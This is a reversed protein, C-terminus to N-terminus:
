YLSALNTLVNITRTDRGGLENVYIDFAELFSSESEDYRSQAVYISGLSNLVSADNLRAGKSERERIKLARICVSEAEKYRGQSYYLTGLTELSDITYPHSDGLQNERIKLSEILLTEADAYRGMTSYLSALNNLSTATDPHQSGLENRSIDLAKRCWQEAEPWQNLNEYFLALGECCWTKDSDELLSTWRDAVVKLHPVSDSLRAREVITITEPITKAIANMTLSFRKRLEPAQSRWSQSILKAQLFKQVLKHLVYGVPDKSALSRKVLQMSLADRVDAEDWNILIDIIWDDRVPALAFLSLTLAVIQAENNLTQWSLEIAAEINHEYDMEDAVISVSRAALARENLELLVASLSSSTESLYRGVLEIGLPLYGLWQCLNVSVTSEENLRSDEGLLECLLLLAASPELVEIQLRQVPPQMKVRTTILVQFAGHQPLFGKIQKYSDADDFVLLKREPLLADWRAFYYQVIQEEGWDTPLDDLGVFREIYELTKTVLQAVPLWWIGGSYDEKCDNLYRRAITTKGVGGMGVVAVVARDDPKLLKKLQELERDRGVFM